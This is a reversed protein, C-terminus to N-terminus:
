EVNIWIDALRDHHEPVTPVLAHSVIQAYSDVLISQNYDPGSERFVLVM